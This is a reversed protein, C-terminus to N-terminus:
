RSKSGSGHRGQDEVRRGEVVERQRATKRHQLPERGAVAADYRLGHEVFQPDALLAMRGESVHPIGIPKLDDGAVTQLLQTDKGM